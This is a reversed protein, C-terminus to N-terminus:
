SEGVKDYTLNFVYNRLTSNNIFEDICDITLPSSGLPYVIHPNSKQKACKSDSARQELDEVQKPTLQSTHKLELSVLNDSCNDDFSSYGFTVQHIANIRLNRTDDLSPLLTDLVVPYSQRM